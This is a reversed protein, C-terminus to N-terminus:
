SSVCMAASRIGVRAAAERRVADLMGPAVTYNAPSRVIRGAMEAAVDPPLMGLLARDEFGLRLLALRQSALPGDEGAYVLNGDSNTFHGSAINGAANGSGVAPDYASRGFEDLQPIPALVGTAKDM